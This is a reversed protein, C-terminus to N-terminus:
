LIKVLRFAAEWTTKKPLFHRYASRLYFDKKYRSHTFGGRVTQPINGWINIHDDLAITHNLLEKETYIPNIVLGYSRNTVYIDEVWEILNIKTQHLGWPHSIQATNLDEGWWYATQTNARVMYEWEAETLLRYKTNTYYNIDEIFKTIEHFTLTIPTTEPINKNYFYYYYSHSIAYSTVAIDQTLKVLCQAENSKRGVETQPSGMIYLGAPIISLIPSLKNNKLSEQFSIPYNYKKATIIQQQQTLKYIEQHLLQKKQINKTEKYLLNLILIEGYIDGQTQLYDAYVKWTEIDELNDGLYTEIKEMLSYIEKKFCITLMVYNFYIALKYYKYIICGLSRLHTVQSNQM